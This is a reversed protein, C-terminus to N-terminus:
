CHIEIIDLELLRKLLASLNDKEWDLAQPLMVVIRSQLKFMKFYHVITQVCSDLVNVGFASNDVLDVYTKYKRLADILVHNRCYNGSNYHLLDYYLKGIFLAELKLHEALLSYRDCGSEVDLSETVGEFYIPNNDDPKGNQMGSPMDCLYLVCTPSTATM